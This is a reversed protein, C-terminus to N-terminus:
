ILSRGTSPGEGGGAMKLIEIEKALLLIMEHLKEDRARLQEVQASPKEDWASRFASVLPASSATPLVGDRSWAFQMVQSAPLDWNAQRRLALQEMGLMMALRLVGSRTPLVRRFERWESANEVMADARDLLERPMRLTVDLMMGEPLPPRGRRRPLVEADGAQEPESAKPVEKLGRAEDMAARAKAWENRRHEGASWPLEGKLFRPDGEGPKKM